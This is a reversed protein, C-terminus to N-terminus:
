SAYRWTRHPHLTSPGALRFLEEPLWDEEEEEEEEEEEPALMSAPFGAPVSAGLIDPVSAGLRSPALM